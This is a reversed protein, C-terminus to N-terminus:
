GYLMANPGDDEYDDGAEGDEVDNHQDADIVQTGVSDNNHIDRLRRAHLVGCIYTELPTDKM